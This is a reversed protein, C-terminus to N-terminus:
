DRYPEISLNKIVALENGYNRFGFMGVKGRFPIKMVASDRLDNDNKSVRHQILNAEFETPLVWKFFSKNDTKLKIVNNRLELNLEILPQNSDLDIITPSNYIPADWNGFIRVHPRFSLKNNIRWVELMFYDELSQAGFVVGLVQRFEEKKQVWGIIAGEEDDGIKGSDNVIHFIRPFEVVIKAKFDKWRRIKKSSPWYKGPKILCGSNSNTFLLGDASVGPSGQIIWGESFGASGLKTFNCEYKDQKKVLWILYIGMFFDVFYRLGIFLFFWIIVGVASTNLAPVLDYERGFINVLIPIDYPSLKIFFDRAINHLHFTLIGAIPATVLILVLSSPKFLLNKASSLIKDLVYEVM